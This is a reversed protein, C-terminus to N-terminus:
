VFTYDLNKFHVILDTQHNNQLIKIIVKIFFFNIILLNLIQKYFQELIKQIKLLYQAILYACVKNGMNM